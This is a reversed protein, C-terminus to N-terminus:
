KFYITCKDLKLYESVNIDRVSRIVDEDTEILNFLFMKQCITIYSLVVLASITEDYERNSFLLFGRTKFVKDVLGMFDVFSMSKKNTAEKM